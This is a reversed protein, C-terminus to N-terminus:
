EETDEPWIVKYSFYLFIPAVIGGILVQYWLSLPMFGFIIPHIENFWWFDFHLITMIIFGIIVLLRKFKLSM